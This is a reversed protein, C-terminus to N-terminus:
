GLNLLKTLVVKNNSYADSQGSGSFTKTRNSLYFHGEGTCLCLSNAGDTLTLPRKVKMTSLSAFGECGGSGSLAKKTVFVPM